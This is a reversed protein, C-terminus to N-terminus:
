VKDAAPKRPARGTKKAPAATTAATTATTTAAAPANINNTVESAASGTIAKATAANKEEDSYPEKDQAGSSSEKITNATYEAFEANIKELLAPHHLKITNFLLDAILSEKKAGTAKGIEANADVIKAFDTVAYKTKFEPSAKYTATFWRAATTHVTAKKEKGPKAEGTATKTNKANKSNTEILIDQKTNLTQIQVELATIKAVM